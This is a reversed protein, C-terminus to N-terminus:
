MYKDKFEKFDNESIIYKFSLGKKEKSAKLKGSKIYNHVSAGTVNLLKAVEDVTYNKM